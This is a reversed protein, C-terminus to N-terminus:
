IHSILSGRLWPNPSTLPGPVCVQRGSQSHLWWGVDPDSGRALSRWWQVWLGMPPPLPYLMPPFSAARLWPLPGALLLRTCPSQLGQWSIAGSPLQFRPQNLHLYYFSQGGSSSSGVVRQPQLPFVGAPSKLLLSSGGQSAPKILRHHGLRLEFHRTILGFCGIVGLRVILSTDWFLM